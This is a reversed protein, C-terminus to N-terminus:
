PYLENLGQESRENKLLCGQSRQQERERWTGLDREREREEKQVQELCERDSMVCYFESLPRWRWRAMEKREKGM